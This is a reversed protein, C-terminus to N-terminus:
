THLRLDVIKLEIEQNGNWENVGIEVVADITDRVTLKECWSGFCFGIMKRPLRSKDIVVLRLHKGDKGLREVSVVELNHLLFVPKPNGEGCPELNKLAAITDWNADALTLDADITLTPRLDAEHLLARALEELRAVLQAWESEGAVSFGAAKPHGGFKLLFQKSEALAEIVNFENISRASGVIVGEGNRCGIIVPKRFQEMLRGAVLGIVGPHWEANYATLLYKNDSSGIQARAEQLAHDTVKQREANTRNLDSALNNAEDASGATLLKFATNAHDMRGASNIRPAIKWSISWTDLSGPKLGAADILKQLGLRRTKNM